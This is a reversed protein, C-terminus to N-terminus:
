KKRYFILISFLELNSSINKYIATAEKKETFLVLFKICHNYIYIYV